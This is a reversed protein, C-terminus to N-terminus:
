PATTSASPTQSAKTTANSIPRIPNSIRPSAPAPECIYRAGVAEEVVKKTGDRSDGDIILIEWSIGLGDLMERIIPLSRYLNPAENLSAIVVSLDLTNDKLALKM